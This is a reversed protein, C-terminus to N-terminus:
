GGKCFNQIRGDYGKGSLRSDRNSHRVYVRTGSLSQFYSGNSGMRIYNTFGGGGGGGGGGDRCVCVVGDFELVRVDPRGAEVPVM